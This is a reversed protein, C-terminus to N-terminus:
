NTLSGEFQTDVDTQFRAVDHQWQTTARWLFRDAGYLPTTLVGARDNEFTFWINGASTSPRSGDLRTKPDYDKFKGVMHAVLLSGMRAAVIKLPSISRFCRRLDDGSSVNSNVRAASPLGFGRTISSSKKGHGTTTHLRAPHGGGASGGM